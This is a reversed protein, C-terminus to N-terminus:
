EGKKNHKRHVFNELKRKIAFYRGTEMVLPHVLVAFMGQRRAAYVDTFMQDGIFAGKVLPFGILRAAKALGFGLPKLAGSVFPLGCRIAFPEVRKRSNNSVLVVPLGAKKCSDLWERIESTLVQSDPPALTNDLDVALWVIGRAALAAPDVQFISDALIDPKFRNM